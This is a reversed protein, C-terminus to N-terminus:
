AEHDPDSIVAGLKGPVQVYSAIQRVDRPGSSLNIEEMRRVGFTSGSM